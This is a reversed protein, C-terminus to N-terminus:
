PTTRGCRFVSVLAMLCLGTNARGGYSVLLIAARAPYMSAKCFRSAFGQHLYAASTHPAAHLVFSMGAPPLTWGKSPDGTSAAYPCHALHCRSAQTRSFRMTGERDSVGGRLRMTCPIWITWASGRRLRPTALLVRLSWALFEWRSGARDENM